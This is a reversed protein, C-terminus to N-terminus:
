NGVTSTTSAHVDADLKVNAKLAEIADVLAKHAAVVAIRAKELAERVPKGADVVTTSSASADAQVSAGEVASVAVVVAAKADAIKTRAIVISAEAKGTDVGKQKLKAIRSDVRDALKSLREIAANMREVMQHAMRKLIEGRREKMKERMEEGRGNTSSGNKMMDGRIEDRNEMRKEMGAPLPKTGTGMLVRKGTAQGSATDRPATIERTTGLSAKSPSERRTPSERIIMVPQHQRKETPLGSVTTGTTITTDTTASAGTGGASVTTDTTGGASAGTTQAFSVMPSLVLAGLLLVSM